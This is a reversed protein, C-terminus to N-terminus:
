NAAPAPSPLPLLNTTNKWQQCAKVFNHALEPRCAFHLHVYSAVLNNAAYGDPKLLDTERRPRIHWAPEAAAGAPKDWSSWHFEHGRVAVGPPLLFNGAPSEVLRYGLSMLRPQMRTQGPALGVMAHSCGELDIMAETLYMFGGCEAYIPMEAAHALRIAEKLSHNAALRAAHLEPFGGGFYLGSVGTPLAPATQPSFFVIDAGAERLLDLNDEYYFSFAADRAVAITVSPETIQIPGTVVPASIPSLEKNPPVAITLIHDLDFYQEIV